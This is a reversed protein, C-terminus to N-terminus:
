FFVASSTLPTACHAPACGAGRKMELMAEVQDHMSSRM